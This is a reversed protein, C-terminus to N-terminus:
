ALYTFADLSSAILYTIVESLDLSGLGHICKSNRYLARYLLGIM